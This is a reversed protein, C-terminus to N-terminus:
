SYYKDFTSLKKHGMLKSIIQPSEGRRLRTLSYIHRIDHVRHPPIGIIKCGKHLANRLSAESVDCVKDHPVKDKVWEKLPEIMNDPLVTLEIDRGKRHVTFQKKAFDLDQVTLKRLESNRIGTFMTILLGIKIRKKRECTEKNDFQNPLCGIEIAKLIKDETVLYTRLKFPVIPLKLKKAFDKDIYEYEYCFRIFARLKTVNTKMSEAGNKERLTELFARCNPLDFTDNTFFARVKRMFTKRNKRSSDSLNQEDAYRDEYDDFAKQLEKVLM